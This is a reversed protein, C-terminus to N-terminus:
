PSPPALSLKIELEENYPSSNEAKVEPRNVRLFLAVTGKLCSSKHAGSGSQFNQFVDGALFKVGQLGAWVRNVIGAV